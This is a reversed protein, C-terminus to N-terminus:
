HRRRYRSRVRFEVREMPWRSGLGFSLATTVALLSAAAIGLGREGDVEDPTVPDLQGSQDVVVDVRDGPKFAEDYQMLVGAIPRGDVSSLQYDYRRHRGPVVHEGTVVATVKVGRVDLVASPIWIFVLIAALAALCCCVIAALGQDPFLQSAVVVSCVVALVLFWGLWHARVFCAAIGVIWSPATLVGAFVLGHRPHLEGRRVRM